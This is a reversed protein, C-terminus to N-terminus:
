CSRCYSRCRGTKKNASRGMWQRRWNRRRLTSISTLETPGCKDNSNFAIRAKARHSSLVIDTDRVSRGSRHCHRFCARKRCPRVHSCSDTHFAVLQRGHFSLCGHSISQFIRYTPGKNSTWQIVDQNTLTGDLSLTELLRIGPYKSYLMRNM